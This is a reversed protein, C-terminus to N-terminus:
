SYGVVIDNFRNKNNFDFILWVDSNILLQFNGVM